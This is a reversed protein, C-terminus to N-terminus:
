KVKFRATPSTNSTLTGVSTGLIEYKYSVSLKSSKKLNKLVLTPVTTIYSKTTVKAKKAGPKKPSKIVVTVRYQANERATMTVTIKKKTQRIKPAGPSLQSFPPEQCDFVGNSDDDVDSVGCGCIGPVTKAPDNPCQDDSGQFLIHPESGFHPDTKTYIYDGTGPIKVAITWAAELTSPLIGTGSETGDSQWHELAGGSNYLHIIARAPGVIPNDLVEMYSFDGAITKVESIGTAPFNSKWVTVSTGSPALSLFYLEGGVSFSGGVRKDASLLTPQGGNAPIAFLSYNTGPPLKATAVIGIAGGYDVVSSVAGFHSLLHLNGPSGDTRYIDAGYTNTSYNATSVTLLANTKSSDEAVSLGSIGTGGSSNILAQGSIGNTTWIQSSGLLFYAKGAASDADSISGSSPATLLLHTGGATGDSGWIKYPGSSATETFALQDGLAFVRSDWIENSGNMGKIRSTGSSTGDTIYIGQTTSEGSQLIFAGKDKFTVMDIARYLTTIEGFTRDNSPGPILDRVLHTGGATGNSYWLEVGTSPEFASFVVGSGVPTYQFPASSGTFQQDHTVRESISSSSGLSWLEFGSDDSGRAGFYCKAGVTAPQDYSAPGFIFTVSGATGDTAIMRAPQGYVQANAIVKNGLISFNSFYTSSSGSSLNSVLATGSPTGDTRWLETGNVGDNASFVLANPLAASANYGFGGPFNKLLVESGPTASAAWLASSYTYLVTSGIVGVLRGYSFASSILSGTGNSSILYAGCFGGATPCAFTALNGALPYPQGSGTWPMETTGAATGDTKCLTGDAFFYARGSVVTPHLDDSSPNFSSSYYPLNALTKVISTGAVTGDSSWVITDMGDETSFFILRGNLDVASSPHGAYTHSIVKLPYTGAATGNTRWLTILSQSFDETITFFYALSGATYIPSVNWLYLPDNNSDSSWYTNPIAAIKSFTNSTISCLWAENSNLLADGRCFFLASNGFEKLYWPHQGLSRANIDKLLASTPTALTISPTLWTTLILALTIFTQMLRTLHIM